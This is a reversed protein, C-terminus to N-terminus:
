AVPCRLFRVQLDDHVGFAVLVTQQKVDLGPLSIHCRIICMDSPFSLGFLSFDQSSLFIILGKLDGPKVNSKCNERRSEEGKQQLIIIGQLNTFPIQLPTVMRNFTFEGTRMAKRSLSNFNHPFHIHLNSQSMLIQQSRVTYSRSSLAGKWNRNERSATAIELNTERTRTQLNWRVEITLFCSWLCVELDKSTLGILISGCGFQMGGQFLFVDGSLYFYLLFFNFYYFRISNAELLSSGM